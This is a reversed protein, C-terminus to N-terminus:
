FAQWVWCGCFDDFMKVDCGCKAIGGTLRRALEGREFASFKGASFRRRDHQTSAHRDRRAPAKHTPPDKINQALAHRERVQEADQRAAKWVMFLFIPSKLPNLPDFM